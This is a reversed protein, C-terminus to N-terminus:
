SRNVLLKLSIGSTHSTWETAPSSDNTQLTIVREVCCRSSNSERKFANGPMARVFVVMTREVGNSRSPMETREHANGGTAPQMREARM